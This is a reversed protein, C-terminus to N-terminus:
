GLVTIIRPGGLQTGTIIIIVCVSVVDFSLRIGLSGFEPSLEKWKVQRVDLPGLSLLGDVVLCAHVSAGDIM